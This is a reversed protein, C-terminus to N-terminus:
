SPAITIHGVEKRLIMCKVPLGEEASEFVRSFKETDPLAPGAYLPQKTGRAILVHEEGKKWTILVERGVQVCINKPVMTGGALSVKYPGKPAATLDTGSVGILYVAIGSLDSKRERDTSLRVTGRIFACNPEAVSPPCLVFAASVQFCILSFLM